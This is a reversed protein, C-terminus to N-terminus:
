DVRSTPSATSMTNQVRATNTRAVDSRLQRQYNVTTVIVMGSVYVDSRTLM